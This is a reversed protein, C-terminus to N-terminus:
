ATDKIIKNIKRGIAEYSLEERFQQLVKNKEKEIDLNITKFLCDLLAKSDGATYLMGCKGPGSMKRFSPINTLIPICGCSMAECVAVGNSEYYSSSIVYDASNYLDSLQAHSKKGLLQINEQSYPHESLLKQISPLLEDEQYILYLKALPQNKHFDIFAKIVTLPDKNTDLRGVWIFVPSGDIGSLNRSAERPKYQFSSSAQIVEHIKKANSIIGEEMWQKGFESSSFLYGSIFKDAIKQLLKKSGTFPKDARHLLFIKANRKLFFRLQIVQLPFILGNIFVIDPDIIKILQHIQVPFRVINKNQRIFYYQVGNFLFEGEYNIREIGIVEHEQNLNELIGTYGELRKLWDEPKNFEPASAYSTFVIKM